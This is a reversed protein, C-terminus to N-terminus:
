LIGLDKARQIAHVRTNAKLKRYINKIHTKVTELTVYVKEAIQKNSLGKEILKLVRMEQRRGNTGQGLKAATNKM